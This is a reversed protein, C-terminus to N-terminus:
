KGKEELKKAIFEKLGPGRLERATALIEGTDGDVLLVFPIGSVDYTEGLTTDWLKGEYIQAWPMEREQTFTTVKDAMNPADFSIGLIEFGGDHHAAYAEKMHPIEGICPGCWTAWFDLMVLKGAFTKPFEIKNGQMDEAAFEIAKQGIELNPPLPTMPLEMEAKDLSLSGDKFTLQYTTGTFNFPTGIRTVERKASIRGDGNRDITLPTKDAIAGSVFTSFPQDDLKFSIEYGFDGYYLLTNKLQARNPDSPDFRYMNIAGIKGDGLDVKSSGSHQTLEGRKDANWPVSEDNTLDGDANTDIYLKAAGEAPEDLIFMFTKNGFQLKGYKPASLGEPAKTVGEANDTMEARIPRYGGVRATVGSDVFKTDVGTDSLMGLMLVPLALAHM